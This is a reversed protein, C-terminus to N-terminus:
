EEGDLRNRQTWRSGPDILGEGIAAITLKAFALMGPDDLGISKDGWMRARGIRCPRDRFEDLAASAAVKAARSMAVPDDLGEIAGAVAAIADIVTKDGLAVQGRKMMAEQAIKLMAGLECYPLSERGLTARGVAMLGTAMLTGLSSGTVGVAAKACDTFTKGLDGSTFSVANLSCIVRALMGGTDGDGLQSDAQNLEHELTSMAQAIRPLVVGLEVVTLSTM